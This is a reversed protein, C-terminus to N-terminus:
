ITLSFRSNLLRIDNLLNKEEDNPQTTALIELEPQTTGYDSKFAQQLFILEKELEGFTKDTFKGTRVAKIVLEIREEIDEKSKMGILPTNENAGWTQLPSGEWLMLEILQTEQDRWDADPNTVLKQVTSYGISHETILGSDVMKLFDMGLAHTGVQSEYYLGKADERLVAFVGLAKSTNHDLLYKIRPQTSGPGRQQITKSFAGPLIIDNDSDLNSFSALYGTVIGLKVDADKVSAILYSPSKKNHQM